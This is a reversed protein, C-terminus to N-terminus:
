RAPLEFRITAGLGFDPSSEVLGIIGYPSFKWRDGIRLAAFPVAEQRDVRSSSVSRLWQYAVGFSFCRWPRLSLGGSATPLPSDGGFARLGVDGFVSLLGAPGVSFGKALLLKGSYISKGFGLRRTSSGTPLSVGGSLAAIPLRGDSPLFTYKARIQVDGIGQEQVRLSSSSSAPEPGNPGIVVDGPGDTRVYPITLKLEILDRSTFGLNRFEYAVSVPVYWFDTRIGQGYDGRTFNIGTSVALSGEYWAAPPEGGLAPDSSM